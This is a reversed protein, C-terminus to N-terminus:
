KLATEVAKRGGNMIPTGDGVLVIEFSYDLLRRLGIKAKQFDLYKEGPLLNLMGAPKGILADGLIMIGESQNLYLASEGPSKENNLSVVKLGGPLISGDKFRRDVLKGDMESADAIPAWVKAKVRDKISPADRIHDRNTLIIDTIGKQSIFYMDATPMLPPDILVKEDGKEIYYGNFNMGKEESYWSWSWIDPLIQKM